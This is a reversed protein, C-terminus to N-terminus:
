TKTWKISAAASLCSHAPDHAFQVVIGRVNQLLMMFISRALSYFRLQVENAEMWGTQLAKKGLGKETQENGTNKNLRRRGAATIWVLASFPKMVHCSCPFAVAPEEWYNPDFTKGLSVIAPLISYDTAVRIDSIAAGPLRDLLSSTFTSVPTEEQAKTSTETQSSVQCKNQSFQVTTVTMHNLTLTIYFVILCCYWIQITCKWIHTKEQITLWAVSYNWFYIKNVEWEKGQVYTALWKSNPWTSYHWKVNWKSKHHM